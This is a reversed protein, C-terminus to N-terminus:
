TPESVYNYWFIPDTWMYADFNEGYYSLLFNNTSRFVPGPSGTTFFFLGKQGWKGGYRLWNQSSILEISYQSMDEREYTEFLPKTFRSAHGGHGVYVLPHTTHYKNLDGGNWPSSKMYYHWSYGAASPLINDVDNPGLPLFILEIMEWDGEHNNLGDNYIYS